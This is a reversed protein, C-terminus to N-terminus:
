TRAAGPVPHPVLKEMRLVSWNLMIATVFMNTHKDPHRPPLRAVGKGHFLDDPGLKSKPVVKHLKTKPTTEVQQHRTQAVAPERSRGPSLWATSRSGVKALRLSRSATPLTHEKLHLLPTVGTSTDSKISVSSCRLRAGQGSVMGTISDFNTGQLLAPDVFYEM